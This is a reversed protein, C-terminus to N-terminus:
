HPRVQDLLHLHHSPVNAIRFEQLPHQTLVFDVRNEVQSRLGYNPYCDCDSILKGSLHQHYMTTAQPMGACGCPGRVM